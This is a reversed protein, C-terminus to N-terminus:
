DHLKGLNKSYKMYFEVKSKKNEIDNRNGVRSLDYEHEDLLEVVGLIDNIEKVMLDLNCSEPNNPDHDYEGFRLIKSVIQIVEGCEESLIVLLHETKNM